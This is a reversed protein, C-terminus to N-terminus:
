PSSSILDHVSWVGRLERVRGSNPHVGHGAGRRVVNECRTRWHGIMPSISIQMTPGKIMTCLNLRFLVIEKQWFLLCTKIHQAFESAVM